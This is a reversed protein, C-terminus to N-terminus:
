AILRGNIKDVEPSVWIDSQSLMFTDGIENQLLATGIQEAIAQAALPPVANGIWERWKGDNKGALVFPSGDDFKVPFSQLASLELTTLPRHWSGDLAVIIPPPDLRDNPAPIRPDGVAAAGAHIDMSGFVTSSEKDWEQVGFPGRSSGRPSCGLRHDAVAQPGNSIGVGKGGTVAPSQKDMKLVGYVGGRPSHKLRPDDISPAGCQVDTDGTVTPASKDWRIVKFRNSFVGRSDPLRPDAIAAACNSSSVKATASVTPSPKQWDSVGYLGPSGGYADGKDKLRPDAVAAPSSGTIRASGTVTAGAEDWDQVSHSGGTSGWGGGVIRYEEPKIKQLDRWDGGAPILALRLWTLWKLKPLRHMPGMGEAGPLPLPGLIDGITKLPKSEPKYIFPKMSERHRAIMLFRKRRQALGGMAGCCHDQQDVAYGYLGLLHNIEALLAKGRSKIRPVNELLFVKPPSDPFADLVLKIGRLTLENLAQYKDLKASASPLLGSLGKCPPSTFVGDPAVGGCANRIDEATIEQWGEPPETGHFRIYQERSFLDWCEIKSKTIKQYSACAGPDSDIALINEFHGSVGRWHFKAQKFGKSGGGIGSFLHLMRFTKDQLPTSQAM